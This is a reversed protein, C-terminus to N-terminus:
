VHSGFQVQMGQGFGTFNIGPILNGNGFGIDSTFLLRSQGDAFTGNDAMTGIGYASGAWNAINLTAGGLSLTSFVFSNDTGGGFDLTSTGSLTLSAFSNTVGTQVGVALTSGDTGAYTTSGTTGTFTQALATPTVTGTGVTNSATSNLLMTGSNNVATTGSLSGGAVM